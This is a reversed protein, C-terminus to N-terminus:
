KLLSVYVIRSWVGKGACVQPHTIAYTTLLDTLSTLHPSDESGAYYAHARDTRLVDKLVNGRIFELDEPTARQNWEGKLRDYERTKRKMYDMRQQGTLGDPYVNLLYRWVVKRLSPEVGGHYIRLRLDEPRSLQGLHNLYSHFESDTLPPKFPKVDEGYSWSLAQQVRSITRG